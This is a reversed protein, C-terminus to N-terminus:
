SGKTILLVRAKDQTAAGQGAAGQWTEFLHLWNREHSILYVRTKRQWATGRGAM